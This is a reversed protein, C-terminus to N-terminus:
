LISRKVRVQIYNWYVDFGIEGVAKTEVEVQDGQLLTLAGGVVVGGGHKPLDHDFSGSRSRGRRHYGSSDGGPSYTASPSLTHTSGHSDLRKRQQSAASGGPPHHQTLSNDRHRRARTHDESRKRAHGRPSVSAAAAAILLESETAEDADEETTEKITTVSHEVIEILRSYFMGLKEGSEKHFTRIAFPLHQPSCQAFISGSNYDMCIVKDAAPVALAINHTVLIRTRDSLFGQILERFIHEGM